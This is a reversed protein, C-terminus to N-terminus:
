PGIRKERRTGVSTARPTKRTPFMHTAKIKVCIFSFTCFSKENELGGALKTGCAYSHACTHLFASLHKSTHAMHHKSTYRARAGEGWQWFHINNFYFHLEKVAGRHAGGVCVRGSSAQKEERLRNTITQFIDLCHKETGALHRALM